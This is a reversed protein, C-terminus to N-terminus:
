LLSGKKETSRKSDNKNGVQLAEMPIKNKIGKKHMPLRDFVLCRSLRASLENFYSQSM